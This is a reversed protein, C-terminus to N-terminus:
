IFLPTIEKVKGPLKRGLFVEIEKALGIIKQLDYGTEIGMQHLMHVTDETAINGTAGKIFPCGGLGGFAVDFIQVGEKYAALLNALGKGETDHLHMAAPIKGASKVVQAMMRTVQQPHGMGTSDALAIEDVGLDLHHQVLEMVVQESVVGEYRCGFACQIGARVQIQAKQAIRVMEVFENKAESISKNTNKRSHTESASLSISLHRLGAEAAREVGKANLVLASYVVGEQRPLKQCIEAADAMQPVWKPHVFSTIQIRKAGAEVLREIYSIKLDTPIWQAEVQFGDRPGQEELQIHTSM